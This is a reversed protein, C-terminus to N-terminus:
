AVRGVARLLRDVVAGVTYRRRVMARAARARRLAGDYDDYAARLQAVADELSPNWWRMGDGMPSPVLPTAPDLAVPFNYRRDAYDAPGSHDVVISPVGLAMAQMPPNMMGEGRSLFFGLHAKAVWERLVPLTWAGDHIIIRDDAFAPIQHPGGGFNGGNTKLELRVDPHTERPFAGVCARVTELPM